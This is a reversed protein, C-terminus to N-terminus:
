DQPPAAAPLMRSEAQFKRYNSYSAGAEGRIRKLLALRADLKVHVSRPLWVEDNVRTQEFEFATGKALRALFLGFSITDLTEGEVRVWQYLQKDIWLKGRVKPLIRARSDRPRYGSRPTAEVIWAPRGSRVEEGLLKFDYADPVERLFRRQEERQKEREAIRKRRESESERAREASAKALKEEETRAEAADLPKGNREILKRYPRGYLFSVDYTRDQDKSKGGGEQMKSVSREIYTYDKSLEFNRNDAEVSRRVIERADMQAFAAPSALLLCLLLPRM